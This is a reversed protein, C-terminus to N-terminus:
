LSLPLKAMSLRFGRNIGLDYSARKLDLATEHSSKNRGGWLCLSSSVDCWSMWQTCQTMINCVFSIDSLSLLQNNMIPFLGQSPRDWQSHSAIECAYAVATTSGGGPVQTREVLARNEKVAGKPSIVTLLSHYQLMVPKVMTKWINRYLPHM